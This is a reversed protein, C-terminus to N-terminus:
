ENNRQTKSFPPEIKDDVVLRNPLWGTYRDSSHSRWIEPRQFMRRGQYWPEGGQYRSQIQPISNYFYTSPRSYNLHHPDLSHDYTNGIGRVGDVFPIDNTKNNSDTELKTVISLHVDTVINGDKDQKSSVSVNCIGNNCTDVKSKVRNETTIRINNVV